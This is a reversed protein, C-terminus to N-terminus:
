RHMWRLLRNELLKFGRDLAFGIGGALLVGVMVIDIRFMQRGLEMMQGLGSEAALLEAGVLVMWSRSLAIRLGTLIAPTTAPFLIKRFLFGNPLHYMQAVEFYSRPVAKVGDYAALAVIFFCAKAVIVIKFTEGVGFILIFMPILAVSPLQRLVQFLPATLRELWHSRAMLAGFVLGAAGGIAFGIFLRSLSAYLHEALEGSELLALFTQVVKLPSVLLQEPFVGAHAVWAWVLLFIAPSFWTFAPANVVRSLISANATDSM